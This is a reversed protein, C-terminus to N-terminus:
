TKTELLPIMKVANRIEQLKCAFLYKENHSMDFKCLVQIPPPNKNTVIKLLSHLRPGWITVLKRLLYNESVM